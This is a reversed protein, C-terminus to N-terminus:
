KVGLWVLGEEVTQFQGDLQGEYAKELLQGMAKGPKVGAEILLKGTILRDPQGQSVGLTKSMELIRQMAEPLHPKIPPRGSHDAEVMLALMEINVKTSLKRVAKASPETGLSCHALHNVVLPVVAALVPGYGKKPNIYAMREFLQVTPEEGAKEHGRSTIRGDPQTETCSPKALDHCLAALVLVGRDFPSLGERAAIQAAADCVLGSHIWVDGEPHHQPDQPVGVLAQLEPYFELWGTELLFQLGKSPYPTKSAWKWWEGWIREGALTSYEAKLSRCLEATEPVVTLGFQSAQRMGRLVRLPDEAFKSSVARLLRNRLDRQGGYPDRIGEIDMAMSNITFDRRSAALTLGLYPNVTVEFGTYGVGAKSETRPLTIDLAEMSPFQDHFGPLMAKIVGFSKGVVDLHSTHKELVALLSEMSIGHVEIDIDKFSVSQGEEQLLTDRVCGGVLYPKAGLAELDSFLSALSSFVPKINM